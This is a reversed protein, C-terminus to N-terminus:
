ARVPRPIHHQPLRLWLLDAVSSRQGIAVV